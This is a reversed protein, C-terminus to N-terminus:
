WHVGTLRHLFCNLAAFGVASGDPGIPQVDILYVALTWLGFAALLGAGLGFALKNEKKM